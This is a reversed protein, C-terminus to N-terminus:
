PLNLTFGYLGLAVPLHTVNVLAGSFHFGIGEGIGVWFLCVIVAITAMVGGASYLLHDPDPGLPFFFFGEKV